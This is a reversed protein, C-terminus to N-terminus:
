GAQTLPVVNSAKPDLIEQLTSNWLAAAKRMAAVRRSVQYTGHVGGRKHMLWLDFAAEDLTEAADGTLTAATRRLDHIQWGHVSAAKDLRAKFGSTMRDVGPFARADAPKGQVRDRLVEAALATLPLVWADRSKNGEITEDIKLTMKDLDVDGVQMGLTISLRVPQALLFRVVQGAEGLDGAATWIRRVEEPSLCRTRKESGAPAKLHMLPNDDRVGTGVAHGIVRRAAGYIRKRSEPALHGVAAQLARGHAITVDAVKLSGFAIKGAGEGIEVALARRVDGAESGAGRRSPARKQTPLAGDAHLAVYRDAVVGVSVAAAALAAAKAKAAEKAAVPDIGAMFAVRQKEAAARAEAATMAAADGLVVTRRTVTGAVRNVYVYTKSGSAYCRLAFGKLLDDRVILERAGEPLKATRATAAGIRARIAATATM